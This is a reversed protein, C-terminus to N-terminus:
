EFVARDKDDCISEISPNVIATFGIQGFNVFFDSGVFFNHHNRGSLQKLFSKGVICFDPFDLGEFIKLM